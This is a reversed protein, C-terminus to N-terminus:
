KKSNNLAKFVDSVVKYLVTEMTNELTDRLAINKIRENYVWEQYLKAWQDESLEEPDVKYNM